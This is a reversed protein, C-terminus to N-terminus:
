TMKKVAKVEEQAKHCCIFTFFYFQDDEFFTIVVSLPDQLLGNHESDKEDNSELLMTIIFSCLGGITQSIVKM